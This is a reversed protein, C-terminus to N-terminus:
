EKEKEEKFEVGTIKAISYVEGDVWEFNEAGVVKSIPYAKEVRVLTGNTYVFDGKKPPENTLAVLLSVIANDLRLADVDIKINPM